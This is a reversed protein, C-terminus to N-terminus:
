KSSPGGGAQLTLNDAKLQAIEAALRAKSTDSSLAKVQSTLKANEEMLLLEKESRGGGGPPGGPGMLRQLEERLKENEYRHISSEDPYCLDIDISVPFM